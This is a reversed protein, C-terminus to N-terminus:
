VQGRQEPATDMGLAARYLDCLQEFESLKHKPVKREKLIQRLAPGDFGASKAEAMVGKIEAQVEAKEEALRELKDVFLRLQDKAVMSDVNGM